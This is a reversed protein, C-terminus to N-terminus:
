SIVSQNIFTQKILFQRKNEFRNESLRPSYGEAIILLTLLLYLNEFLLISFADVFPMAKLVPRYSHPPGLYCISGRPMLISSQQWGQFM